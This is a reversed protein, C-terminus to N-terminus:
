LVAMGFAGWARQKSYKHMGQSGLESMLAVDQLAGIPSWMVEGIMTLVFIAWFLKIVDSTQFMWGIVVRYGHILENELSTRNDSANTKPPLGIPCTHSEAARPLHAIILFDVMWAVTALLLIAKRIKFRDGLSGLLPSSISGVIPKVGSLVGIYTPSLGVQKYFVSLFPIISGISGYFFLFLAKFPLLKKDVKLTEPCKSCCPSCDSDESPVLKSGEEDEMSSM